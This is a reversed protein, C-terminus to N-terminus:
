SEPSRRVTVVMRGAEDRLVDVHYERISYVAGDEIPFVIIRDPDNLDLLTYADNAVDALLTRCARNFCEPNLDKESEPLITSCTHTEADQILLLGSLISVKIFGSSQVQAIQEPINYCLDYVQMEILDGTFLNLLVPAQYTRQIDCLPSRRLEPISEKRYYRMVCLFVLCASLIWTTEDM